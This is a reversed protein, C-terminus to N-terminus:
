LLKGVRHLQATAQQSVTGDQFVAVNFTMPVEHRRCVRLYQILELDGYRLGSPEADTQAQVWARDDLCTWGHWLLGDVFQSRPATHMRQVKRYVTRPEDGPEAPPQAHPLEPLPGDWAHLGSLEGALYDQHPTYRYDMDFGSNYTVLRQDWGAKAAATFTEWPFRYDEMGTTVTNNPGRPDLSYPSDFWWARIREGYKEGMWRLLNVLNTELRGDGPTRYGVANKWEPDEEQNCSHNYYAIFHKGRRVLADAIEGVLDRSTTRGPLLDDLVPHPCPLKQLGHAVTFIVYDAGSEEISEIFRDLQFRDVAEEFPRPPGSRPVTQATWHFGIGYRCAAFWDTPAPTYASM